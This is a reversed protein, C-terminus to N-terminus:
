NQIKYNFLINFNNLLFGGISYKSYSPEYFFYVSSISNHLIDIAGLAILQGDLFYKMHFCGFM